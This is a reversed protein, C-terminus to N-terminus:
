GLASAGDSSSAATDAASARQAEKKEFHILGDLKYKAYFDVFSSLPCVIPEGEAYTVGDVTAAHYNWIRTSTGDSSYANLVLTDPIATEGVALTLPLQTTTADLRVVRVTDVCVYYGGEIPTDDYLFSVWHAGAQLPTGAAMSVRLGSIVGSTLAYDNWVSHGFTVNAVADAVYADGAHYAYTANRVDVSMPADAQVTVTATGTYDVDDETKSLHLTVAGTQLLRTDALDVDVFDTPQLSGDNCVYYFALQYSRLISYQWLTESEVVTATLSMRRLPVVTIPVDIQIGEYTVTVSQTDETVVTQRYTVGTYDIVRVNDATYYVRLTLGRLSVTQGVVYETQTPLTVIEMRQPPRAIVHLTIVKKYTKGQETYSIVVPNPGFDAAVFDSAMSNDVAVNRVSGDSYVVDLTCGTLDLSDGIYYNVKTPMTSVSVERVTVKDCASLVLCSAGALVLLCILILVTRKM